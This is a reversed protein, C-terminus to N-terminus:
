TSNIEMWGSFYWESFAIEKIKQFAGMLDVLYLLFVSCATFFLACTYYYEQLNALYILCDRNIHLNALKDSYIFESLKTANNLKCYCVM